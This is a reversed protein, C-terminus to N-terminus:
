PTEEELTSGEDDAVQQVHKAREAKAKRRRAVEARVSSAKEGKQQEASRLRATVREALTMPRPPKIPIREGPEAM